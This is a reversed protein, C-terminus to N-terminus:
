LYKTIQKLTNDLSFDNNILIFGYKSAVRNIEGNLHANLLEEMIKYGKCYIEKLEGDNVLRCLSRYREIDEKTRELLKNFNVKKPDMFRSENKLREEIKEKSTVILFKKMEFPYAFSLNSEIVIFDANNQAERIENIM